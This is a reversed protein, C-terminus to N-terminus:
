QDPQIGYEFHMPDPVGWDGGWIFGWEAMIEVLRMDQTGESGLGNTGANIDLAAGWSHRSVGAPTGTVTRILRPNWCGAFDSPDILHSLGEFAVQEMAGRVMEIVVRHCTIRGLLPVSETTINDALYDSDIDLSSGTSPTYAFEGLAQKIFIQPLVADGHRMWPTEGEARIRLPAPGPHLSRVLREFDARDLDSSVLAYRDTTAPAAPDGKAFVVEAGGVVADPVVGVVEFESGDIEMSDGVQLGRFRASTESLLVTGSDLSSTVGESDYVSHDESVIAIADLPVVMGGDAALEALDAAVISLEDFNDDLGDVLEPTLGGSSWVLYTIAVDELTTTTPETATTAKTEPVTTSTALPAPDGPVPTSSPLIVEPQVLAVVLGYGVVVSVVLLVLRGLRRM